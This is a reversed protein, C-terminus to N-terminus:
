AQYYIATTNGQSIVNNDEDYIGTIITLEDADLDKNIPYWHVKVNGQDEESTASTMKVDFCIEVKKGNCLEGSYKMLKYQDMDLGTASHNTDHAAFFSSDTNVLDSSSIQSVYTADYEFAVIAGYRSSCAETPAKVTICPTYTESGDALQHNADSNSTVGNDNVITLTPASAPKLMPQIDVDSCVTSFEIEEAFYSSIPTGLNNGALAKYKSLVDAKTTTADDAVTKLVFNDDGIKSYITLTNNPDTGAKYANIDNYLAYVSAIGDCSLADKVAPTVSSDILKEGSPTTVKLQPAPAEEGDSEGDSMFHQYAGYGLIGVGVLALLPIIAAAIGKKQKILANTPVVEIKKINHLTKM